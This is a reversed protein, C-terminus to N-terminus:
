VFFPSLVRDGVRGCKTEVKGVAELAMDKGPMEIEEEDEDDEFSEEFGDEDEEFEDEASIQVTPQITTDINTLM